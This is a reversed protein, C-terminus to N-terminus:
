QAAKRRMLYYVGREEIREFGLRDYLRLAPNEFEVHISVERGLSTAYAIIAELLKTGIGHGRHAPLLSIDVIRVESPWTDLYLRGCRDAEHAIVYFACGPYHQAYHAEQAASQSALFTDIQTKPWGTRALEELRTSAYVAALFPMDEATRLRLTVGPATSVDLSM